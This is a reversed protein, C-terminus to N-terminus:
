IDKREGEWARLPSNGERGCFPCTAPDPAPDIGEYTWGNGCSLCDYDAGALRSQHSLAKIASAINDFMQYGVDQPTGVHSRVLAAAEDFSLPRETPITQAIEFAESM